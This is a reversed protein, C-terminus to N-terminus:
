IKECGFYRYGELPVYETPMKGIYPECRNEIPKINIQPAFHTHNEAQVMTDDLLLAVVTKGDKTFALKKVKM